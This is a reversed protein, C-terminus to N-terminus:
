SLDDDPMSPVIELKSLRYAEFRAWYAQHHSIMARFM